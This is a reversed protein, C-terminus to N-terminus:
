ESIPLPAPTPDASGPYKTGNVTCSSLSQYYASKAVVGCQNITHATVNNEFNASSSVNGFATATTMLDLDGTDSTWAPLRCGVSFKTQARRQQLRDILGLGVYLLQQWKGCVLIGNDLLYNM